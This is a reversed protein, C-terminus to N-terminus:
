IDGLAQHLASFLTERVKEDRDTAINPQYLAVGISIFEAMQKNSMKSSTTALQVVHHALMDPCNPEFALHPCRSIVEFIKEQTMLSM